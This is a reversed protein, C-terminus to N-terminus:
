TPPSQNVSSVPFQRNSRIIHSLIQRGRPIFKDLHHNGLVVAFVLHDDALFSRLFRYSRYSPINYTSFNSIVFALTMSGDQWGAISKDPVDQDFPLANCLYTSM